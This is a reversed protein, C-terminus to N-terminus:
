GRGDMDLEGNNAQATIVSLTDGGDAAGQDGSKVRM